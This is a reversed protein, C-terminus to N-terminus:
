NRQCAGALGPRVSEAIEKAEGREPHSVIYVQFCRNKKFTSTGCGNRATLMPLQSVSARNGVRSHMLWRPRLLGFSSGHEKTRSQASAAHEAAPELEPSSAPSSEIHFGGSIHPHGVPHWSTPTPSGHLLVHQQGPSKENRQPNPPLALPPPIAASASAVSMSALLSTERSEGPSDPLSAGLSARPSTGTAVSATDSLALSHGIEVRCPPARSGRM